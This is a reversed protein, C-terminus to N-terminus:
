KVASRPPPPLKGIADNIRQKSAPRRIRRPGQLLLSGFARMQRIRGDFRSRMARLTKPRPHHRVPRRPTSGTPTPRSIGISAILPIQPARGSRSGPGVQARAWDCGVPVWHHSPSEAMGQGLLSHLPTSQAVPQLTLNTSVAPDPYTYVSFATAFGFQAKIPEVWSSPAHLAAQSHLIVRGPTAHGAVGAPM